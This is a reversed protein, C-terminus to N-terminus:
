DQAATIKLPSKATPAAVIPPVRESRLWQRAMLFGMIIGGLHASHGVHGMFEYHFFGAIIGAISLAACVWLLTMTSMKMPVVMFLLM